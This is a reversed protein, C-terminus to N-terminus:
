CIIHTLLRTKVNLRMSQVKKNNVLSIQASYSDIMTEKKKGFGFTLLAQQLVDVISMWLSYRGVAATILAKLKTIVINM